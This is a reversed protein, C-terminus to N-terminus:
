QLPYEVRLGPFRAFDRDNTCLTAGHEIALAALHADMILSGRVRNKPLLSSLIQWHRETPHLVSINPQALWSTVIEMAEDLQYPQSLIRPTTVIRLFGLITHWSLGVADRRSFIQELWRSARAHEKAASYYAYLLLNIDPLIM